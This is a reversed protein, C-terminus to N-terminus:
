QSIHGAHLLLKQLQLVTNWNRATGFTKLKKELFGHTLKSRGIGNPYYIYLAQGVLFFEEPGAYTRVLDEQASEDPRTALFMVAVWQPDKNTQSQFPNNEIIESLEASTRVFVEAHFGFKSEFSEEIQRQLRLLDADDHTFVVNGSRIYPAVDRLGLAAHLAKLDDMKVQNGGVNISRFLAVSATM